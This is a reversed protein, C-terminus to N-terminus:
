WEDLKISGLWEELTMEWRKGRGQEAWMFELLTAARVGDPESAWLITLLRKRPLTAWFYRLILDLGDACSMVM